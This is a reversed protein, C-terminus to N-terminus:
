TPSISWDVTYYSNAGCGDPSETGASPTGMVIAHHPASQIAAQLDRGKQYPILNSAVVGDCDAFALALLQQIVVTLGAGVLGGIITGAIGGGLDTLVDATLGDSLSASPALLATVKSPPNIKSKIFDTIRDEGAKLLGAVVAKEIDRNGSNLISYAFAVPECLEVVVHEFKLNFLGYAGSNVDGLNFSAQQVPWRGVSLTATAHDTDEHLARTDRIEVEDVSFTYSSPLRFTPGRDWRQWVTGYALLHIKGDLNPEVVKFSSPFGAVISPACAFSGEVRQWDGTENGDSDTQGHWGTSDLWGHWLARDSGVGFVDVLHEHESGTIDSPATVVPESVFSVADRQGPIAKQAYGISTWPKWVKGDFTIYWIAGDAGTVFVFTRDRRGFQSERTRIAAPASAAAPEGLLAGGLLGWDGGVSPMWNMHYVLFDLGRVFIDFGGSGAPLIVPLSTFGGGLEEWDTWSSGDWARHVMGQDLGIGFLDIRNSATSAVAPTSTLNGGLNEWDSSWSNSSADYVKHHVAYDLGLGFVDLRNLGVSVAAPPTTFIGGLFDAVGGAPGWPFDFIYDWNSHYMALDHDLWFIDPGAPPSTPLMVVGQM